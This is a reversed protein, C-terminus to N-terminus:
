NLPPALSATGRNRGRPDALPRHPKSQHPGACPGRAAESATCGPSCYQGEPHLACLPGNGGKKWIMPCPLAHFDLQRRRRALLRKQAQKRRDIPPPPMVRALLSLFSATVDFSLVCHTHPQHARVSTQPTNTTCLHAHVQAHPLLDTRAPPRGKTIAPHTPTFTHPLLLANPFALSSYGRARSRAEM